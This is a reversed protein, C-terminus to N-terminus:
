NNEDLLIKSIQGAIDSTATYIRSIENQVREGSFYHESVRPKIFDEIANVYKWGVLTGQHCSSEGNLIICIQNNALITSYGLKKIYEVCEKLFEQNKALNKIEEIEPFLTVKTTEPM